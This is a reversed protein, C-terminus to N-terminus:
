CSSEFSISNFEFILLLCRIFESEFNVNLRIEKKILSSSHILAIILMNLLNLIYLFFTYRIFLYECILLSNMSLPSFLVLHRFPFDFNVALAHM